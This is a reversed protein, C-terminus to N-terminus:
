NISTDKIYTEVFKQYATSAEQPTVYSGLSKITKGLRIRAVYKGKILTVGTPLGSKLTREKSLNQRVTVIRLNSPRNDIPNSNIHDIVLSSGIEFGLFASAVLSHVKYQKKVSGSQISVVEYGHSSICPKLIGPKKTRAFNKSLIRGDSSAQYNEFGPIDKWLEM